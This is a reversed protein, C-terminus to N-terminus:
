QPDQRESVLEYHFVLDFYVAPLVLEERGEDRNACAPEELVEEAFLNSRDKTSKRVERVLVSIEGEPHRFPTALLIDGPQADCIVEAVDHLTEEEAWMLKGITNYMTDTINAAKVIDGCVKFSGSTSLRSVDGNKRGPFCEIRVTDM